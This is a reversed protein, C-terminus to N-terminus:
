EFFIIKPNDLYRDLIKGVTKKMYEKRPSFEREKRLNLIASAVHRNEDYRGQAIMNTSLEDYLKWDGHRTCQLSNIIHFKYNEDIIWLYFDGFGMRGISSQQGGMHRDRYNPMHAVTNYLERNESGVDEVIPYAIKKSAFLSIKKYWNTM